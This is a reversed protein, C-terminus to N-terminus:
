PTAAGIWQSLPKLGVKRMSDARCGGQIDFRSDALGNVRIRAQLPSGLMVRALKSETKILKEMHLHFHGRYPPREENPLPPESQVSAIAGLGKAM